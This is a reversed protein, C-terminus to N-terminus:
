LLSRSDPAALHDRDLRDMGLILPSLEHIATEVTKAFYNLTGESVGYIRRRDSKTFLWNKWPNGAIFTEIKSIRLNM